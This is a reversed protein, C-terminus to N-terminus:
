RPSRHLSERAPAQVLAELTAELPALKAPWTLRAMAWRRARRGLAPLEPRREWAALMASALQDPRASPSRFAFPADSPVLDHARIDTLIVPLGACLYEALKLPSSVHWDWRDPLPVIGVDAARLFGLVQEQPVPGQFRVHQELGRRQVLSRLAPVASGDGLLLLLVDPARERILDIAAISEFLGRRASMSGQYCIVFRDRLGEELEGPRTTKPM